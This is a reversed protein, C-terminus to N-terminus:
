QMEHCLECSQSIVQGDKTKHAEDHCRFCGPFETHGQNNPHTGWKVRMSPFVNRSYLDQLGEVSRTIDAQRSTWLAPQGARYFALLREAINAAGTKQDPYDAELAALGERKIFPLDRAVAGAALAENLARDASKAFIHSPRNHCDVCDMRRREGGALQAETVGEAYYERVQGAATTLRVYGIQQRASDLAVYEVVNEDAVHWHIGRPRGTADIGGIHLRLTTVSETNAEDSAFEHRTAVKDGHFRTPWHCQECTERAPRLDHVPSPIPRSHSNMMVAYMQRAGSLKSKVFWSAGAGIHCEVCKVRAHPGDQYAVFEPEMVEHCVQGCFSVSDMAEVGKYAAASLILLNAPTLVAVAFLTARVRSDNLDVRPWQRLSPPRGRLQRRRERWAGIPILLLGAVFLAPLTIFFVIGLYPNSHVAIGLADLLLFGLFLVASVTTVMVGAITIVNRLVAIPHVPETPATRTDTM